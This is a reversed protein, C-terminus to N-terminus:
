ASCFPPASFTEAANFGEEAHQPTPRLLIVVVGTYSMLVLAVAVLSVM